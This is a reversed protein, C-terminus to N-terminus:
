SAVRTVFRDGCSAAGNLRRAPSSAMRSINTGTMGQDVTLYFRDAFGDYYHCDHINLYRKQGISLAGITADPAVGGVGAGPAISLTDGSRGSM